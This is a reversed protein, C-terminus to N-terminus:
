QALFNYLNSFDAKLTYYKSYVQKNENKNGNEDQWPIVYVKFENVGEKNSIEFWLEKYLYNKGNEKYNDKGEKLVKASQYVFEIYYCSSNTKITTLSCTSIEAHQFLTGNFLATLSSEKSADNIYEEIKKIKTKDSSIDDPNSNSPKLIRVIDPTDFEIGYNVDVNAMVITTVILLGIIILSVIATVKKAM